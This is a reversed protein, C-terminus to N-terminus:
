PSLALEGRGVVLGAGTLAAPGVAGAGLTVMAVGPRASGAGLDVEISGGRLRGHRRLSTALALVAAGSGPHEAQGAEGWCRLAWREGAGAAVAVTMAPLGALAAPDPRLAALDQGPALVVLATRDGGDIVEVPLEARVGGLAALLAAPELHAEVAPAPAELTASVVRAGERALAVTRAGVPTELFLADLQVTTGVLHAAGLVAEPCSRLPGHAGFLRLRGHTGRGSPEVFASAAAGVERALATLAGDGLGAVGTFVAVPVGEFARDTFVDVRTYRARRM